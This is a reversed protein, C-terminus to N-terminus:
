CTTCDLFGDVHKSTVLRNLDDKFRILFFGAQENENIYWLLDRSKPTFSIGFEEEVLDFFKENIRNILHRYLVIDGNNKYADKLKEAMEIYLSVLHIM